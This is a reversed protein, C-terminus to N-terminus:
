CGRTDEHAFCGHDPCRWTEEWLQFDNEGDIAYRWKNKKLDTISHVSEPPPLTKESVFETSYTNKCIPCPRKARFKRNFATKLSGFMIKERYIITSLVIVQSIELRTL